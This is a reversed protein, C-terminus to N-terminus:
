FCRKQFSTLNAKREDEGPHAADDPAGYLAESAGDYLSAHSFGMLRGFLYSFCDALYEWSPEGAAYRPEKRWETFVAQLVQPYSDRVAYDAIHGFEHGITFLTANEGYKLDKLGLLVSPTDTDHVSDQEFNRQITVQLTTAKQTWVQVCAKLDKPNLESFCRAREIGALAGKLRQPYFPALMFARQVSVGKKAREIVMENFEEEGAAVFFGKLYLAKLFEVAAAKKDALRTMHETPIERMFELYYIANFWEAETPAAM